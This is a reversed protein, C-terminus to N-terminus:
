EKAGVKAPPNPAQEDPPKGGGGQPVSGGIPPQAPAPPRLIDPPLDYQQEVDIREREARGRERLIQRYSMGARAAEADPTSLNNAIALAAAEVEKTPDVWGRPPRIWLCALFPSMDTLMAPFVPLLGAAVGEIIAAEYVPQCWGAVLNDQEVECGRWIELLAARASSYNMNAFDKVAVEYSLGGSSFIAKLIRLVFPEFTVGPRTPMFPTMEEGENLYEVTGPELTEIYHLEGTGDDRPSLEPAVDPDRPDLPRKITMVVNSNARAAILESDLYHHLHEFLPLAPTLMPAGRSVAVRDRRFHHIVNRWSGQYKDIRVPLNNVSLPWAHPLGLDDQHYPTVWYAIPEGRDGLEVGGRVNMGWATPPDQLRDPDILEWSGMLPRTPSVGVVVRHAIVEGDVIQTRCVLRTLDDFTGHETADLNSSAHQQWLQAAAENWADCEEQSLGTREPTIAPQPRMGRGVINDVLTKVAASAHADDRVLARSKIRLARLDPLLDSDASGAIMRQRTRDRKAADYALRVDARARGLRL